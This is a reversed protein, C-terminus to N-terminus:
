PKILKLWPKASNFPGILALNAQKFNIVEKAALSLERAQLQSIRVLFQKTDELKNEFIYQKAAWQAQTSSNEMALTIKGKIFEKAKNLEELGIPETIVKILEQRILKIAQPLRATDLGAQVALVGTGEYNETAANISYCLGERERLRMFLRSSMNGGLVTALLDLALKNKHRYGYAPFGLALQVQQTAKRQIVVRPKTQKPKFIQFGGMKGRSTENFQRRLLREAQTNIKGAVMVLLNRPTYYRQHYKFVQSRSLKTVSKLSGAINVGLSSDQFVAGELLDGIHMLPNDEYMKIEECIVKKERQLEDAALVPQWIMDSIIDIALPLHQHAVRVYYGTEDKSTFANYDAGVGDLAQSIDRATPWKKSGKFLMHELVHSIGQEAKTEYRSGVKAVVLITASETGKMPVSLIPLGNHLRKIVPKPM